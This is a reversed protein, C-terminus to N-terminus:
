KRKKADENLQGIVDNNTECWAALQRLPLGMWYGVPTYANRALTFALKRLDAPVGSM